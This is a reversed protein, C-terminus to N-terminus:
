KYDITKPNNAQPKIEYCYRYKEFVLFVQLSLSSLVPINLTQM